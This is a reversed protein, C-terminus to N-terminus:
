ELHAIRGTVFECYYYCDDEMVHNGYDEYNIFDELWKPVDAYQSILEKGLDEPSDYIGLIKRNYCDDEILQEAEVDTLNWYKNKDMLIKVRVYVDDEFDYSDEPDILGSDWETEFFDDFNFVAGGMSNIRVIGNDTKVEIDDSTLNLWYTYDSHYNYSTIDFINNVGEFEMKIKCTRKNPCWGFIDYCNLNRECSLCNDETIESYMPIPEDDYGFHKTNFDDVYKKWDDLSHIFESTYTELIELGYGEDHPFMNGNFQTSMYYHRNCNDDETILIFNGRTM